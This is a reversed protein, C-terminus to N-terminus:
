ADDVVWFLALTEADLWQASTSGPVCVWAGDDVLNKAIAIVRRRTRGHLTKLVDGSEIDRGNADILRM